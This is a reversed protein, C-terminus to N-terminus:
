LCTESCFHEAGHAGALINSFIDFRLHCSIEAAAM